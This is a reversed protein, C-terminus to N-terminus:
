VPGEGGGSACHEERMNNACKLKKFYRVLYVPDLRNGHCLVRVEGQQRTGPM